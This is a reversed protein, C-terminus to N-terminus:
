KEAKEAELRAKVKRSDKLALVVVSRITRDEETAISLVANYVEQPLDITVRQVEKESAKRM